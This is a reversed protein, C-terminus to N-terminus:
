WLEINEGDSSAVAKSAPEAAKKFNPKPKEARPTDMEDARVDVRKSIDGIINFRNLNSKMAKALKRLDGASVRHMNSNELAGANLNGLTDVALQVEGAAGSQVKISASILSAAECAEESSTSISVLINRISNTQERATQTHTNSSEMGVSIKKTTQQISDVIGHIEQTAESTRQALNRVEDAVVAFGRGHEGARAAEIAANLALLNTQDAVSRIVDVITGIDLSREQLLILDEIAQQMDSTLIDMTGVAQQVEDRCDSVLESTENESKNIHHVQQGAALSAESMRSVVEAVKEGFNAQIDAKQAMNQYSEHLEDAMPLLRTSSHTLSSIAEETSSILESLYETFSNIIPNKSAALEVNLNIKDGSNIVSLSEGLKSLEQAMWTRYIWIGATVTVISKAV